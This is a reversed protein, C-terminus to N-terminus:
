LGALRYHIGLVVMGTSVTPYKGFEKVISSLFCREAVIMNREKSISLALIQKNTSDIAVWLWILESGAKLQTEDVINLIKFDDKKKNINKSSSIKSDLEL